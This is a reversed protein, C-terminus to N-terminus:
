NGVLVHPPLLVIQGNKEDIKEAHYITRLEEFAANLKTFTEGGVPIRGTFRGGPIEQKFVPRPVTRFLELDILSRLAILRWRWAKRSQMTLKQEAKQILRYAEEASANINERKFNQELTAIAKAMDDVVDPSFEFAIYEKIIDMAPRNAQWYFQAYLVKNIDDYIGESYPFGGALFYSRDRWETQFREPLPAAGFGGWPLQGLMTIEPFGLMSFGGPIGVPRTADSLWESIMYSAWEPKRESFIKNIELWEDPSFYWSSMIIKAEPIYKRQQEALLRAIRLYGNTGWPKCNNCCCGGGDYPWIFYYKPKVDAFERLLQAANALLYETGGPKSPCIDSVNQAGKNICNVARIDAPSNRYGANGEDGWAVDLGIASATKLVAHLRARFKVAVPDSFGNYEPSDYWLLLVNYGWLAVDEVYQQVEAIPAVHYFNNFHTALYIGRVPKEPVSTGRWNGATFGGQDYRSSRLFKGVGYLVGREDNGIIRVIGGKGDAIRFGEVGIGPEIALEINLAADGNVKTKVNCRQQVQRTFLRAINKLVPGADKPLRICVSRVTKFKASSIMESNIGSTVQITSIIGKAKVRKFDSQSKYHFGNSNRVDTIIRPVEVQLTDSNVFANNSSGSAKFMWCFLFTLIFICGLMLFPRGQSFYLALGNNNLLHKRMGIM